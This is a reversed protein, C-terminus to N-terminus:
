SVHPYFPSFLSPFLNGSRLRRRLRLTQILLAHWWVMRRYFCLPVRLGLCLGYYFIKKTLTLVCHANSWDFVTGCCIFDLNQALLWLSCFYSPLASVAEQM